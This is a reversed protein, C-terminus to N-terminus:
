KELFWKAVLFNQDTQSAYTSYLVSKPIWRESESGKEQICIAQATERLIKGAIVGALEKEVFWPEILFLQVGKKDYKSCIVSKPVWVPKAGEVLRIQLAKETEAVIEGTLTSQWFLQDLEPATILQGAYKPMRGRADGCEKATLHLGHGMKQAYTSLTLADPKNFGIQNIYQTRAVAREDHTQRTYIISIARELFANDTALL